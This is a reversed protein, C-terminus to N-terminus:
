IMYAAVDNLTSMYLLVFGISGSSLGSFLIFKGLKQFQVREGTIDFLYWGYISYSILVDMIHVALMWLFVENM